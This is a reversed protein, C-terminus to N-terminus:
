SKFEEIIFRMMIPNTYKLWYSEKPIHRSTRFDSKLAEIDFTSNITEDNACLPLQKEVFVEMWKGLPFNPPYKPKTTQRVFRIIAAYYKNFLVESPKHEGSYEFSMLPKYTAKLFKAAYVPNNIRKLLKNGTLEKKDFTFYSSFLLELYDIDLFPTYVTDMVTNYLNVDQADHMHATIDSLANHKRTLVAGQMYPQKCIFEYIANVDVGKCQLRKQKLRKQLEIISFYNNGWNDYVLSPIIYDDESVGKIFEGGLTGLFMNQALEAEQEVAMLRHVRHISALGGSLRIIRRAYQEFIDANLRIDYISHELGLKKSIARAKVCDSSNPNGYTFLHPRINKKLFTALLNRTDGGGTLSLSIKNNVKGDLCDDIVDALSTSIDSIDIDRKPLNLLQEPKWYYRSHFKDDNYEVVQGPSNHKVNEFLTTGGSFHYDLAYVSINAPSPKLSVLKSIEKLDNSIIFRTGLQWFFYKRIGFYDSFIKFGNKQFQIIIFNGKIKNIFTDEEKFYPADFLNDYSIGPFDSRINKRPLFYGEYHWFNDDRIEGSSKEDTLFAYRNFHVINTKNNYNGIVQNTILWM